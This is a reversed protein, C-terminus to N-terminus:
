TVTGSNSSLTTNWGALANIDRHGFVWGNVNATVGVDNTLELQNSNVHAGWDNGSRTVSWNPYTGIAGTTSYTASNNSNFNDNFLTTQGFAQIFGLMMLCLMSLTRGKSLAANYRFFQLIKKM